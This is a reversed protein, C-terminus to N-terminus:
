QHTYRKGLNRHVIYSELCSGFKCQYINDLLLDKMHEKHQFNNRRYSHLKKSQSRELSSKLFFSMREKYQQSHIKYNQLQKCDINLLIKNSCYYAIDGRGFLKDLICLSLQIYKKCYQIHDGEPLKHRISLDIEMIYKKDELLLYVSKYGTNLLSRGKQRFLRGSIYQYSDFISYCCLSNGIYHQISKHKLWLDISPKYGVLNDKRCHLTLRYKKHLRFMKIWSLWCNYKRLKGLQNHLKYLNLQMYKMRLHINYAQRVISDRSQLICQSHKLDKYIHPICKLIKDPHRCESISVRGQSRDLIHLDWWSYQISQHSKDKFYHIHEICCLFNYSNGFHYMCGRYARNNDLHFIKCCNGLQNHYRHHYHLKHLSNGLMRGSYHQLKYKM